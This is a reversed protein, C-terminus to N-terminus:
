STTTAVAAVVDNGRDHWSSLAWSGWRQLDGSLDTTGFDDLDIAGVKVLAEKRTWWHLFVVRPDAADRVQASEGPSLVHVEVETVSRGSTVRELDFGVPALAGV